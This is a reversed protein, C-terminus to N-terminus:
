EFEAGVLEGLEQMFINACETDKFYGFVRIKGPTEICLAPRKRDSFKYAGIKKEGDTLVKPM